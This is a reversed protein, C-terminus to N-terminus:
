EESTFYEWIVDVMEDKNASSSLEVEHQEAVDRLDAKNLSSLEERTWYEDGFDSVLVEESEEVVVEMVEDHERPDGKVVHAHAPVVAMPNREVVHVKKSVYPANEKNQQRLHTTMRDSM